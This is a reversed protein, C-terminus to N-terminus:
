NLQKSVKVFFITLIEVMVCILVERSKVTDIFELSVFSEFQASLNNCANAQFGLSFSEFMNWVKLFAFEVVEGLTM